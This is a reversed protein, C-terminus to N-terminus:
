EEGDGARVVRIVRLAGTRTNLSFVVRGKGTYTWTRQHTDAGSYFPILAKLTMYTAREDPDGLLHRVDDHSMGPQVQDL